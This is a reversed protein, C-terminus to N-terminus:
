NGEGLETSQCQLGAVGGTHEATHALLLSGIARGSRRLSDERKGLEYSNTVSVM